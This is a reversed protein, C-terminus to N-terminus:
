AGRKREIAARLFGIAMDASQAVADPSRDPHLECWVAPDAGRSCLALIVDESVSIKLIHDEPIYDGQLTKLFRGM